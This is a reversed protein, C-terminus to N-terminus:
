LETKLHENEYGEEELKMQKVKRAKRASQIANRLMREEVETLGEMVPIGVRILTRVMDAMTRDYKDALEMVKQKLQYSVFVNLCHEGRLKNIPKSM